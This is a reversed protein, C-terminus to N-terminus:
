IDLRVQSYIPFHNSRLICTVYFTAPDSSGVALLKEEVPHELTVLDEETYTAENATLETVQRV